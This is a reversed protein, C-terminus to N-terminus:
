VSMIVKDMLESLLKTDAYTHIECEAESNLICETAKQAEYEYGNVKFPLYEEGIKTGNADFLKYSSAYWFGRVEIMGNSGVLKATRTEENCGSDISATLTAQIGKYELMINDFADVGTVAKRTMSMFKEPKCDAFADNTAASIAGLAYTLVYIGLDLCAGGGLEKEYLRSGPVYPNPCCIDAYVNKLEGIAGNKVLELVKNYVPHFKTWMAEMFFMGTEKRVALVEELEAENMTAPKECLVAKGAKMALISLEKHMPHPTAIYVADVCPDDFAEQYSGYAKVAGFEAKFQEAKELGRSAVGYLVADDVGKLAAAMAKAIRGLGIIAWNVKSM